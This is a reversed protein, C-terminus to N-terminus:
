EMNKIINKLNQIFHNHDIAFNGTVSANDPITKTVVSGINARANQGVSIGNIITAGFGIWTNDGIETRGGIGSNAVIMVNKKIKVAHAIHVLNDIKSYDGIETNDWPYIAKDVCSNYQIEVNNGIIVGGLHTVSDIVGNNRKFEYGQGGIKVGARIISNDNIVTNERVVVFEEIQVNNGIIVNKPAICSLPSIICNKGIQTDFEKRIYEPNYSLFNHIKFFLIRPNDCICFSSINNASAIEKTTLVVNNMNTLVDNIYKIDDIFTLKRKEIVVSALALTEFTVDGIYVGSEGMDDMIKDLKM